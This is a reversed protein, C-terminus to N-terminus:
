GGRERLTFQVGLTQDSNTTATLREVILGRSELEALWGFFAQPRVAEITMTAQNSGQRELRAIPFGAEAAAQSLLVDLPMGLAAPAEGEAQRIADAQGRADALAIIASAHRERANSLADGLPRIVLLWAILIAALAAMILLLRQERPTRGIWWTKLRDTM